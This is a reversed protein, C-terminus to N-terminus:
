HQAHDQGDIIAEFCLPLPTHTVSLEVLAREFSCRTLGMKYPTKVPHWGQGCWRYWIGNDVRAHISRDNKTFYLSQIIAPPAEPNCGIMMTPINKIKNQNKNM